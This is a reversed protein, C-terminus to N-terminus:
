RHAHPCAGGNMLKGFNCNACLLQYRDKPWGLRKLYALLKAGTKFLRRDKHGDNEVHDLQLFLPEREGCCACQDGYAAIMEARLRARYGISWVRNYGLVAAYNTQRKAAQRARQAPADAAYAARKEANIRERNRARYARDADRKRAKRYPAGGRWNPNNEGSRSFIIPRESM